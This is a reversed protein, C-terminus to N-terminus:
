TQPSEEIPLPPRKLALEQELAYAMRFLKAEQFHAALMQLGVPLGEQTFGCPMALGPIGALNATVTYIDSLYMKLPDATKEGLKFPLSPAVPGVLVDVQKFAKLYDQRVLTRVKSAKLYYADYYGSSLAYTGLMIRRKVEEGFGQSRTHRYMAQLDQHAEHRYGYKVGDYRALNSSAEAPAIIYYTAIAYQTNPLHVEFVPCGLGELKRTAAHIMEEIIPDLGGGFWEAPIGVKLGRIEKGIESIYDEVPRSVSTSDNPDPGAISQLLIAADRTNNAFPGIADLSSAFAVLGLRSVRGYTPKVGVVGCFAAPQRISGGTDTGLAGPAERAAVCAASGGSSGGPVRELDWPNHTPFYGSNETSSGMAFEDCNTKGLLVFNEDRLKGIVTADNPPTYNELIRSACTTRVGRTVIVDKIALPIGTLVGPILEQSQLRRDLEDARALVSEPEVTLFARVRSDHQDIRDLFAQAIERVSLDKRKLAQHLQYISFNHIESM